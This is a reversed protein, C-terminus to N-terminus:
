KRLDNLSHRVNRLLMVGDLASSLVKKTNIAYNEREAHLIQESVKIFPATAKVFGTQTDRIWKDSRKAWPQFDKNFFIKRNLKPVCVKECNKLILIKKEMKKITSFNSPEHKWCITVLNTLKSPIPEGPPQPTKHEPDIEDLIEDGVQLHVRHDDKIHPKKTPNQKKVLPM